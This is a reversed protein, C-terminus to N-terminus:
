IKMNICSNAWECQKESICNWVSLKELWRQWELLSTRWGGSYTEGTLCVTSLPTIHYTGIPHHTLFDTSFVQCKSTREYCPHLASTPSPFLKCAWSLKTWSLYLIRHTRLPNTLLQFSPLVLLYVLSAARAWFSRLWNQHVSLWEIALVQFLHHKPNTTILESLITWSPEVYLSWM